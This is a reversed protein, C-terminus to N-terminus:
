WNSKQLMHLMSVPSIDVSYGRGNLAILTHNTKTPWSHMRVCMSYTIIDYVRHM